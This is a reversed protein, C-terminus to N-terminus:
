LDARSPEVRSILKFRAETADTARVGKWRAKSLEDATDLLRKAKKGLKAILRNVVTLQYDFALNSSVNIDPTQRLKCNKQPRSAGKTFAGDRQRTWV